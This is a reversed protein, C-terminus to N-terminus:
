PLSSKRTQGNIRCSDRNKRWTKGMDEGRHTHAWGRCRYRIRWGTVHFWYYITLVGHRMSTSNSCITTGHPLSWETIWGGLFRRELISGFLCHGHFRLTKFDSSSLPALESSSCMLDLCSRSSRPWTREEGDHLVEFSLSLSNSMMMSMCISEAIHLCRLFLQLPNFDYDCLYPFLHWMSHVANKWILLHSGCRSCTRAETSITNLRFPHRNHKSEGTEWM